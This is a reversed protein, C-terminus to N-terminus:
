SASYPSSPRLHSHEDFEGLDISGYVEDTSVQLFKQVETGVLSNLLTSLGIVNTEFFINPGQISRDVHSEAAFNVVFNADQLEFQYLGPNRLDAEVFRFKANEEHDKFNNKSGAYTLSDVVCVKTFESDKMVLDVFHSGIFGAGGFIVIKM